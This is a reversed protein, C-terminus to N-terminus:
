RRCSYWIKLNVCGISIEGSIAEEQNQIEKEAKDTLAIIEEASRKLQQGQQTLIVKHRTRIFLQTGLEEELQMLQRSLSPQTIHLARAAKTINEERAVALFYRLVRLEM